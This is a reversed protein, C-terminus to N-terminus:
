IQPQPLARLKKVTALADDDLIKHGSSKRLRVSLIQGREDFTVLVYATGELRARRAARPPATNSKVLKYVKKQYARVLGDRDIGGGIGPGPKKGLDSTGQAAGGVRTSHKSPKAAKPYASAGATDLIPKDNEAVEEVKAKTSTDSPDTTAIVSKITKEAPPEIQEPEEKEPEPEEPPVSIAEKEPEEEIKEPAEVGRKDDEERPTERESTETAALEILEPEPEPEPAVPEEKPPTPIAIAVHHTHDVFEQFASSESEITAIEWTGLMLVAMIAGHALASSIISTHIRMSLPGTGSFRLNASQFPKGRGRMCLLDTLHTDIFILITKLSIDVGRAFVGPAFM